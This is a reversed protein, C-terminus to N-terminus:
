SSAILKLQKSSPFYWYNGTVCASLRMIDDCVGDSHSGVMRDLMYELNAPSAAYRPWHCLMNSVCGRLGERGKGSSSSALSGLWLAM